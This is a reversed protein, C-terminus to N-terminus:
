VYDFEKSTFFNPVKTIQDLLGLFALQIQNPHQEKLVNSQHFLNLLYTLIKLCTYIIDKQILEM